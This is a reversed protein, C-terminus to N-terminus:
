GHGGSVNKDNNDPKPQEKGEGSEINKSANEKDNDPGEDDNSSVDNGSIDNASVDNASVDVTIKDRVKEKYEDEFFLADNKWASLDDGVQTGKFFTEVGADIVPDPVSTEVSVSSKSAANVRRKITGKNSILVVSLVLLVVLSAILIASQKFRYDM